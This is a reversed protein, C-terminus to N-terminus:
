AEDPSRDQLLKIREKAEDQFYILGFQGMIKRLWGFCRTYRKRVHAVYAYGSPFCHFATQRNEM